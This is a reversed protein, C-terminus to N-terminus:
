NTTECKHCQPIEDDTWFPARCSVCIKRKLPTEQDMQGTCGPSKELEALLKREWDALPALDPDFWDDRPM